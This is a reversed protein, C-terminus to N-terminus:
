MCVYTCLYMHVYTRVYKRVYMHVHTRVYSCVHMIDKDPNCSALETRFDVYGFSGILLSGFDVVWPVYMIINVISTYM